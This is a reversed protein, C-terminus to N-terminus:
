IPNPNFLLPSCLVVASDRRLTAYWKHFKAKWTNLAAHGRIANESNRASIRQKLGTNFTPIALEPAEAITIAEMAEAALGVTAITIEKEDARYTRYLGGIVALALVAFYKELKANPFSDQDSIDVDKIQTLLVSRSATSDAGNIIRSDLLALHDQCAVSRTYCAPDGHQEQRRAIIGTFTDVSQSSSACTAFVSAWAHCSLWGASFLLVFREDVKEAPSRTICSEPGPPRRSTSRARWRQRLKSASDNIM